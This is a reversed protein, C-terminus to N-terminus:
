NLYHCFVWSFCILLLYQVCNVNQWIYQHVVIQATIHKKCFLNQLYNYAFQRYSLSAFFSENKVKHLIQVEKRVSYCLGM